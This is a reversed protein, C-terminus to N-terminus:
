EGSAQGTCAGFPTDSRLEEVLHEVVDLLRGGAGYRASALTAPETTSSRSADEYSPPATSATPSRDSDDVLEVISSRVPQLRDGDDVIIEAELGWRAARWKNERTVWTRPTPSTYGRDILRDMWEILCQALAAVACVM